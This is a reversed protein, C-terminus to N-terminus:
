RRDLQFMPEFSPAVTVKGVPLVPRPDDLTVSFRSLLTALIIQAEALAFTAGICIRPGVGFPLFPSGASWPSPKGAFRDTKPALWARGRETASGHVDLRCTTLRCDITWSTPEDMADMRPCWVLSSAASALRGNAVNQPKLMADVTNTTTNCCEWLRALGVSLRGRVVQNRGHAILWPAWPVERAPWGTIAPITPDSAENLTEELFSAVITEWSLGAALLTLHSAATQSRCGQLIQLDARTVAREGRAHDGECLLPTTQSIM